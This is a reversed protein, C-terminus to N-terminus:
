SIIQQISPEVVQALETAPSKKVSDICESQKFVPQEISQPFQANIGTVAPGGSDDMSLKDIVNILSSRRSDEALSPLERDSIIIKNKAVPKAQLYPLFCFHLDEPGKAIKEFDLMPVEMKKKELPKKKQNKLLQSILLNQEDFKNLVKNYIESKNILLQNIQKVMCVSQM